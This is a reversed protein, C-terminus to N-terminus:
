AVQWTGGDQRLVGQGALFTKARKFTEWGVTCPLDGAFHENAPLASGSEERRAWRAITAAIILYAKRTAMWEALQGDSVKRLPPAQSGGEQYNGGDPADDRADLGRCVDAHWQNVLRNIRGPILMRHEILIKELDARLRTLSATDASTYDRLMFTGDLNMESTTASEDTETRLNM